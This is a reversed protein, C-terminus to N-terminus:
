LGERGDTKTTLPRFFGHFGLPLFHGTWIRCLPKLSSADFIEIFSEDKQSHYGMVVCWGADEVQSNNQPIFLSEGYVEDPRSETSLIQHSYFDYKTIQQSSLPDQPDNQRNMYLYRLPQGRRQVNFAPFDCNKLLPTQSVLKRKRLSLEFRVLQPQSVREPFTKWAAMHQLISHDNAIFSDFIINEGEEYANGHHFAMMSPLNLQVPQGRGDKRFILLQTGLSPKFRLAEALPPKSQIMRWLELFLPPVLFIIYNQTLMMDHVVYAHRQSHSFLEVAKGIKPSIKYVKLDLTLAKKIGYGFIDKTLPDEKPHATFSVNKPLSGHFDFYKKASVLFPHGSESLALLDKGNNWDMINVNPQFKFGLPSGPAFTGFEHYLMKQSVIERLREPTELFKTSIHVSSKSFRIQTLFPDGDFFHNLHVGYNVRQGPGIRFLDGQLDSPIQGEIATPEWTGALQTGRFARHSLLAPRPVFARALAFPDLLCFPILRSSRVLFDRRKM